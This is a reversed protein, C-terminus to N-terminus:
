TFTHGSRPPSSGFAESIRRAAAKLLSKATEFNAKQAGNSLALFPITLAGAVEEGYQFVPCSIGTVAPVDPSRRSAFGHECVSELRDALWSRDVPNGRLIEAESIIREAKEPRSFALIAHGSCTELVDLGAGIQLVFGFVGPSEARAVVLSKGGSVIAFHCSQGTQEALDHMQPLATRVVHQAQTARLALDLLKCSVMYRDSHAPKELYGLQELVFVMRYLEGMTRDLDDAMERLSAGDPRAALAEFSEFGRELAPAAYRRKREAEAAESPTL